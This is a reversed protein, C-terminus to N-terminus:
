QDTKSYHHVANCVNPLVIINKIKNKFFQKSLNTKM